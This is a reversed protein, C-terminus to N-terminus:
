NRTAACRDHATTASCLVFRRSSGALLTETQEHSRRPVDMDSEEVRRM